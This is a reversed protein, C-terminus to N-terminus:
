ALPKCNGPYRRVVIPFVTSLLLVLFPAFYFVLATFIIRNVKYLTYLVKNVLNRSLFTVKMPYLCNEKKNWEDSLENSDCKKSTTRSIVLVKKAFKPELLVKFSESRLSQCM